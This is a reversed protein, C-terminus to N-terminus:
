VFAQCHNHDEFHVLVYINMAYTNHISYEALYHYAKCFILKQNTGSCKLCVIKVKLMFLCSPILDAIEINILRKPFLEEKESCLNKLIQVFDNTKLNLKLLGKWFM